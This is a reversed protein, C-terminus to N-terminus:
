IIKDELKTIRKEHSDSRELIIGMNVNLKEISSRMREISLGIWCAVASGLFYFIGQAVNPWDM